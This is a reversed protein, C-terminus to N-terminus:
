GQKLEVPRGHPTTRYAEAWAQTRLDLARPETLSKSICLRELAALWHAYYGSGDDPPAERLVASLVEVWEAWTFHGADCLKLTLAFAQAQWPEAFVPEGACQPMGPLLAVTTASM